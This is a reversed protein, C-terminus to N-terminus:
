HSDSDRLLYKISKRFHLFIPLLYWCIWSYYAMKLSCSDVVSYYHKSYIVKNYCYTYLLDFVIFSCFHISEIISWLSVNIMTSIAIGTLIVQLVIYVMCSVLGNFFLFLHFLLIPFVAWKLPLKLRDVVIISLCLLPIGLIISFIVNMKIEWQYISQILITFLLGMILRIILNHHHVFLLLVSSFLVLAHLLIM